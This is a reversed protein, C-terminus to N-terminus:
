WVEKVGRGKCHKKHAKIEKYVWERNNFEIELGCKPCKWVHKHLVGKNWLFPM